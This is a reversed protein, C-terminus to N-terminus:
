GTGDRVFVGFPVCGHLKDIVKPTVKMSIARKHTNMASSAVM